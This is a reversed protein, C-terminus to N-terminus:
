STEGTKMMLDIKDFVKGVGLSVWIIPVGLIIKVLLPISFGIRKM